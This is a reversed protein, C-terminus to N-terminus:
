AARREDSGQSDSSQNDSGHNAVWGRVHEAVLAAIHDDTVHSFRVRVPAPDTSTDDHVYAVGPLARPIAACDAGRDRAGDGLVLDTQEPEALRMAIRTPFLDRFPIVDKRPDIVAAVVAFGPARGKALLRSLASAARKKTATDPAHATLDAVEDVMVVV